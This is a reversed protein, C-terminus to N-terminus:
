VVVDVAYELLLSLSMLSLKLYMYISKHKALFFIFRRNNAEPILWVNGSEQSELDFYPGPVLVYGGGGLGLCTVGLCKGWPSIGGSM